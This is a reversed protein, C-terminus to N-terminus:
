VISQQLTCVNQHAAHLGIGEIAEMHQCLVSNGNNGPAGKSGLMRRADAGRRPSKSRYIDMLLWLALWKCQKHKAKAHM